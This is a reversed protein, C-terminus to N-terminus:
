KSDESKPNLIQPIELWADKTDPRANQPAAPYPRNVDLRHIRVRV